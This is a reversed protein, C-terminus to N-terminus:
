ARAPLPRTALLPWPSDGYVARWYAAAEQLSAWGHFIADNIFGDGDVVHGAFTAYPGNYVGSSGSGVVSGDTILVWWRRDEHEGLAPTKPISPIEKLLRRLAAEGARSARELRSAPV